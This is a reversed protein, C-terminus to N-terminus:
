VVSCFDWVVLCFSYSYRVWVPRAFGPMFELRDFIESTSYIGWQSDRTKESPAKSTNASRHMALESERLDAPSLHGALM